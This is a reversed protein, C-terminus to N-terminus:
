KSEKEAGVALLLSMAERIDDMSESELTGFKKLFRSVDIGRAQLVDVASPKSLGNQSTAKLRVLWFRNEFIDKWGTIPAILKIPLKGAVDSSLVVIPREKKIEVGVTPNLNVLWIAGQKISSIMSM